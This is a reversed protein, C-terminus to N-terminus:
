GGLREGPAPRSGRTWDEVRLANRGAPQVEILRLMGDACRVEADSMTGPELESPTKTGSGHAEDPLGIADLVLLRKGRFTTWARDLRVLRELEFVPRTFDLRLDDPELKPAYTPDGVQEARTGLGQAGKRLVGVLLDSAASALRETLESAHERRDDHIPLEHVALVP